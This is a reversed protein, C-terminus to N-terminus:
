LWLVAGDISVEASDVGINDSAEVWLIVSDGTGVSVSGSDDSIVPPDDDTVIIDYPGSSDFLGQADFVEIEYTHDAASGSPANYTYEWRSLGSNWTM